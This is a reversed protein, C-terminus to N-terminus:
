KFASAFGFDVNEYGAPTYPGASTVHSSQEWIYDFAAGALFGPISGFKAGVGAGIGFSIGVGTQKYYYQSITIKGRKVDVYNMTAGILPAHEAGLQTFLKASKEYGLIEALLKGKDMYEFYSSTFEQADDANVFPVGKSAKSGKGSSKKTTDKSASNQNDARFYDGLEPDEAPNSATMWQSMTLGDAGVTEKTEEEDKTRKNDQQKDDSYVDMGDPDIFRIPNNVGYNYPSLRRYKDALPDIGTWREIVPDYFRAGYDYLNMNLEDQLEKGNYKYKNDPSPVTNSGRNMQMGFAYYDTQQSIQGDQGILVRTNGLHDKLAYDYFYSSGGNPRARGEETQIFAISGSGDYEIGNVYDRNGGSLVKRLKRGTADYIYTLVSGTAPTVTYPLNLHNYTFTLGKKNDVGNGTTKRQEFTESSSSHRYNIVVAIHSTLAICLGIM